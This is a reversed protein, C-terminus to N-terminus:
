ESSEGRRLRTTFRAGGEPSRGVIIAGGMIRVHEATISLGLGSGPVASHQNGRVFPEFIYEYDGKPIGSGADDFHLAIFEGQVESRIAELGGAYLEANRHLNEFVQQFRRVDVVVLADEVEIIRPDLGNRHCLTEILSKVSLEELVPQVGGSQYRSMEILDNLIREFQHVREGLLDSGLQARTPLEDRKAAILEAAGKIVTLPSRLEHSVVAGFRAERDIRARLSTTMENFTQAIRALDPERPEKARKTLDGGSIQEATSSIDHLPEMVRRSLWWGVSGGGVIALLGGIALAGRLVSLTRELEQLSMVGIFWTDSKTQIPFGVVVASEDRISVRQRGASGSELSRILDSPIDETALGVGSVLWSGDQYLAARAGPLLQAGSLLVELPDESRTLTSVALRAAARVQTVAVEDRQRLLYERSLFFTSLSAALSLLAAVATGMFVTKSRLTFTIM